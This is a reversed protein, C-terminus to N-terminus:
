NEFIHESNKMQGYKLQDILATKGCGGMLGYVVIRFRYDESINDPSGIELTLMQPFKGRAFDWTEPGNIMFKSDMYRYFLQRNGTLDGSMLQAQELVVAYELPTYLMACRNSATDQICLVPRNEM